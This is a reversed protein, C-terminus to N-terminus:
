TAEAGIITLVTTEYWKSQSTHIQPELKSPFISISNSYAVFGTVVNMAVVVVTRFQNDRM